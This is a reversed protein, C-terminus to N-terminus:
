VTKIPFRIIIEWSSTQFHELEYTCLNGPWISFTCFHYDKVVKECVSLVV